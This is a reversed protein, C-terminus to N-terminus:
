KTKRRRRRRRKPKVMDDPVIWGTHQKLYNYANLFLDPDTQNGLFLKNCQYCLLGRIAGAPVFESETHAHDVAFRKNFESHHRHCIACCGKQKELLEDYQEPTIGFKRKLSYRRSQDAKNKIYKEGDRKAREYREKSRVNECEKCEAKRGFKGLKHRYFQDLPKEAGCKSCTKTM